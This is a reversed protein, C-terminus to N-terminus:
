GGRFEPRRREAFAALGEAFDETQFCIVQSQAEWALAAGLPLEWSRGIAQKTLMQAVPAGELLAAAIEDVRDDLAGPEVVELCLGIERAEEAEVSRGTLALEKARQLGVIRPLLWTGGGDVTLGRRVFLEAFRARSTAIVLDCALALNMGAGVAPGDVAAISPKTLGHLASVMASVEDMRRAARTPSSVEALFESRLEAGSCFAGGAGTLVLVRDESREFDALAASLDRWGDAPVANRVEPRDLVLRRVAGRREVRLWSM